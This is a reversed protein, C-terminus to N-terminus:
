LQNVEAIAFLEARWCPLVAAGRLLVPFSRGVCYRLALPKEAAAHTAYRYSIKRLRTRWVTRM